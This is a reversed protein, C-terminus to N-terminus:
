LRGERWTKNYNSVCLSYTCPIYNEMFFVIGIKNFIANDIIKSISKQYFSYYNINYFYIFYQM